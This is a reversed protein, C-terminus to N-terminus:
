EKEESNCATSNLFWELEEIKLINWNDIFVYKDNMYNIHVNRAKKWEWVVFCLNKYTFNSTNSLSFIYLILWIGIYLKQLTKKDFFLIYIHSSINFIFLFFILILFLAGINNNTIVNDYYIVYKYMYLALWLNISLWFLFSLCKWLKFKKAEKIYLFIYKYSIYITLIYIMVLPIALISDNIVESYSFFSINRKISIYQYIIWTFISFLTFLKVYNFINEFEKKEIKM